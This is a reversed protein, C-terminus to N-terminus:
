SDRNNVFFLACGLLTMATLGGAIIQNSESLHFSGGVTAALMLLMLGILALVGVTRAITMALADLTPWALSGLILLAATLFTLPWLSLGFIVIGYICNACITLALLTKIIAAPNM